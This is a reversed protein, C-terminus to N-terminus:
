FKKTRGRSRAIIQLVAQNTSIKRGAVSHVFRLIRTGVIKSGSNSLTSDDLGRYHWLSNPAKGNSSLSEGFVNNGSYRYSLTMSAKWITTNTEKIKHTYSVRTSVPVADPSVDDEPSLETTTVREYAKRVLSLQEEDLERYAKVVDDTEGQQLSRLVFKDVSDPNNKKVMDPSIQSDQNSKASGLGSAFLGLGASAGLGKIISRRNLRNSENEKMDSRNDLQTTNM